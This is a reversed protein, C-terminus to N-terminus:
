DATRDFLCSVTVTWLGCNVRPVGSVLCAHRKRCCFLYASLLSYTCSGDVPRRRPLRLAFRMTCGRRDFITRVRQASAGRMLFWITLLRRTGRLMACARM